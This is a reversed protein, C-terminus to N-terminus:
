RTAHQSETPKSVFLKRTKKVMQNFFLQPLYRKLIWLRKEIPHPLVWFSKNKVADFIMTAVDEATIGTRQMVNEVWQKTGSSNSRISETLNTPFFGPCVVSINIESYQSFEIRLSESLSIVAAKTANYNSIRPGNLLGAASAINVFYGFKQQLFLPSFAKCGRVTGMLNIDVVWDWDEMPVEEIGGATGAVGANNVVIDVGGWEEMLTDRVNELDSYKTVDCKIFCADAQIDRLESLTKQSLSENVDGICVRYGSKAFHKAISKGM